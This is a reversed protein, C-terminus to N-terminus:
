RGYAKSVGVGLAMVGFRSRPFVGSDNWCRPASEPFLYPSSSLPMWTYTKSLSDFLTFLLPPRHTRKVPLWWGRGGMAMWIPADM